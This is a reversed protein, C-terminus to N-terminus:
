LDNRLKGVEYAQIEAEQAAVNQKNISNVEEFWSALENKKVNYIPDIGIMKCTTDARYKIFGDVLENTLIPIDLGFSDLFKFWEVERQVTFDFIKKANKVLFDKIDYKVGLETPDKMGIRFLKASIATHINEDNSILRIIRACGNIANDNYENIAYTVAFSVFFQMSELALIYLLLSPIDQGHEYENIINDFRHQIEPYKEIEDFFAAADHYLSRVIHSYSMSHILEFYAWTSFVPEWSPDTCKSTLVYEIGRNQLSDALTQFELNLKFIQQHNEPITPLMIKDRRLSIEEPRWFQAMQLQTLKDSDPYRHTDFRQFGGYTGGFIKTNKWDQTLNKTDVVKMQESGKIDV